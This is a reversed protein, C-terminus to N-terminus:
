KALWFFEGISLTHTQQFMDAVANICWFSNVTLESLWMRCYQVAHSLLVVRIHRVIAEICM